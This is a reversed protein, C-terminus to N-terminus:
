AAGLLVYPFRQLDLQLLRSQILNVFRNWRSVTANSAPGRPSDVFVKVYVAPEGSSDDGIFARLDKVFKPLEGEHSLDEKLKNVVEQWFQNNDEDSDPRIMSLPVAVESRERAESPQASFVVTRTNM